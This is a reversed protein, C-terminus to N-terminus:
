KTAVFYSNFPDSEVDAVAVDEFGAEALMRRALQGGWATGLGDGDLGLSVSMCHFMSIAYLYSGWPLGINDEVNSSAKIDVMLFVGGPRLAERINRLVTAPHAQDHIADFATVADFAERADLATVDFLEFTANTLGMREAEARAQRIAPESFDYGTFRSAPYAAAMLNVAHGAGCGIDAVDIGAALRAPLDPALPLIVDILAADHVAASTEAMNRHFLPYDAYSLGGGRRFREIIPQEVEGMMSIHQMLLALNNPGAAPTLVAAHERPLHYTRGVPDYHVVGATTMGGLWERVYREDLDGADAIQESTAPPLESLSAFLGTQHGVSTLMAIAASNLIDLYRGAFATVAEPDIPEVATPETTTLDITTM